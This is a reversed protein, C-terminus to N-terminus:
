RAPPALLAARQDPTLASSSDLWARAAAPDKALWERVHNALATARLAPDKIKSYLDATAARPAKDNWYGGLAELYASGQFGARQPDAAIWAETWRLAAEPETQAWRHLLERESGVHRKGAAEHNAVAWRFAAAPDSRGWAEAIPEIAAARTAPDALAAYEALAAKPDERALEALLRGHVARSAVSVGPEAEHQRIWALAADSDLKAWASLLRSLNQERNAGEPM